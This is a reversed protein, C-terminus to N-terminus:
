RRSIWRPYAFSEQSTLHPGPYHQFIQQVLQEFEIEDRDPSEVALSWWLGGKLTLHTLEYSLGRHQRQSRRKEVEVWGPLLIQPIAPLLSWKQWRELYGQLRDSFRWELQEQRWKLELRNQRQKVNLREAGLSFYLDTREEPPHPTGISSEFWAVVEQPVTGSCFWRVELTTM